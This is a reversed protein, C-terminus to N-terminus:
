SGTPLVSEETQFIIGILVTGIKPVSKLHMSIDLLMLNKCYARLNRVLKQANINLFHISYPMIRNLFALPMYWSYM